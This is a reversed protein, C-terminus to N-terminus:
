YPQRVPRFLARVGTNDTEDGADEAGDGLRITVLVM